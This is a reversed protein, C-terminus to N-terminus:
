RDLLPLARIRLRATNTPSKAASSPGNAAGACFAVQSRLGVDPSKSVAVLQDGAVATGVPVAVNPADFVVVMVNELGLVDIPVRWNL